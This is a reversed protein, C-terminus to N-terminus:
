TKINKRGYSQLDWKKNDLPCVERTRLWRTICHSHFSHTCNGTVIDCDEINSKQYAQCDICVDMTHNRCIACNETILDWSWLGVATLKKVEFYTKPAEGSAESKDINKPSSM